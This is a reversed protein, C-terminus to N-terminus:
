RTMTVFIEVRRNAARGEPSSGQVAPERAGKSVFTAMKPDIGLDRLYVRVARARREALVDNYLPRGIEDAHGELIAVSKARARLLRAVDNLTPRDIDRITARDFDFHVTASLIGTTQSIGRGGGTTACGAALFIIASLAVPKRINM